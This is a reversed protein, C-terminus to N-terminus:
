NISLEFGQSHSSFEPAYSSQITSIGSSYTGRHVVNLRQEIVFTGKPMFEIFIHDAVDRISHYYGLGGNYYYQSLNKNPEIGSARTDKINIFQMNRDSSIVLRSVIQDGPVLSTKQDLAQLKEGENTKLVKFFEKEIKLPGTNDQSVNKADSLYQYYIGGWNIHNSTNTIEIKGMEPLIQDGTFSKKFYGTGVEENDIELALNGIKIDVASSTNLETEDSVVGTLLSYIAAATAKSTKWKNVQKHKILWIKMPDLLEKQTGIETMFDLIAAHREIPLQHWQYGNGENWYIGLEDNSFSRELLSKQITHYLPNGIRYAYQGLLAQSYISLENWHKFAKEEFFDYAIKNKKEQSSVFYRRTILNVIDFHSPKYGDKDVIRNYKELLEYDIYSVAKDIIQQNLSQELGLQQLKGFQELLYLTITYSSRSQPTWSFGGDSNQRQKIRQILQALQNQLQNLNFFNFIAMKQNEEDLAEMVWPTEKIVINKLEENKLLNSKLSTAGENKWINMVSEIHPFKHIIDLGIRNAYYENIMSVTSINNQSSVYPLAQVVYWIPNNSYEITLSKPHHNPNKSILNDISWKKTEKGKLHLALSEVVKIQDSLIPLVNQEADSQNGSRVSATYQVLDLNSDKPITIKWSVAITQGGEITGTSLRSEKILDNRVEGTLANRLDLDANFEKTLNTMNSVKATFWLEDGYRMYRPSNPIIMIDKSTTVFREDFGTQLAQSHALTLLKWKTLAENISFEISANGESDTYITPFFFVTEDLNQRVQLPANSKTEETSDISEILDDNEVASESMIEEDYVPAPASRKHRVSGADMAMVPSRYYIGYMHNEFGIFRPLHIQDIDRKKNKSRKHEFSGHIFDFGCPSTSIQSMNNYFFKSKWRHNVFQDLSSDYMAMLIESLVPSEENSNIHLFYKEKQGPNLKDRFSQFVIDLHKNTWPVDLFERTVEQHNDKITILRLELGGRDKEDITYEFTHKGSIKLWGSELIVNKRALIYYSYTKDSSAGLGLTMKQGPQWSKDNGVVFLSQYHPFHGKKSDIVEFYFVDKVLNGNSDIAEAEIKYVGVKKIENLDLNTNAEFKNSYLQKNEKWKNFNKISHDFDFTLNPAKMEVVKFTGSASTEQHNFTLAKISFSSRESLDYIPDIKISLDFQADLFTFQQNISRKEGSLDTVDLKVDYIYRIGRIGETFEKKTPFSLGINGSLDTTGVGQIVIEEQSPYPFYYCYRPYSLRRTVTYTFSADSIGNGAYGKAKGSLKITDGLAVSQKLTDLVVEFTPRKYEEVRISKSGFPTVITFHGTLLGVPITFSGSFSGFTNSIHKTEALNQYNADKLEVKVNLGTKIHPINDKYELTLGKYYITQGPRYISRDTYLEVSSHNSSNEFYGLYAQNKCLLYDDKYTLEFYQSRNGVPVNIKGEENSSAEGLPVISNHRERHDYRRTFISANVHEIPKGSVRHAVILHAQKPANILSYSLDSVTFLLYSSIKTSASKHRAVLVYVGKKLRDLEISHQSNIGLSSNLSVPDLEQMKKRSLFSELRKENELIAERYVKKDLQYLLLESQNLNKFNIQVIPREKSSYVEKGVLQISKENISNQLGEAQLAYSSNPFAQIAKSCWDLATKNNESSGRQHYLRAIEYAVEAFEEYSENKSLVNLASLYLESKNSRGSLHYVFKIRNLNTKYQEVGSSNQLLLQYLKLIKYNSNEPDSSSIPLSKFAEIPAFYEEDNKNFDQNPINPRLEGQANLFQIYKHVLISYITPNRSIGKENYGEKFLLRFDDSPQLLNQEDSISALFYTNIKEHFAQASMTKIDQNDNDVITTRQSIEYRHNNFYNAYFQALNSQLINQYPKSTVKIEKELMRVVNAVGQEDIQLTLNSKYVIAKTYQLDNEEEKANQYILNVEELASKPLGKEVLKEVKKWAKDFNFGEEYSENAAFSAM